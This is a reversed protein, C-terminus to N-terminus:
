MNIVFGKPCLFTILMLFIMMGRGDTFYRQALCATIKLFAVIELVVSLSACIISNCALTLPIFLTIVVSFRFYTSALCLIDPM